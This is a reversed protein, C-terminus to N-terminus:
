NQIDNETYSIKYHMSSAQKLNLELKSIIGHLSSKSSGIQEQILSIKSETDSINSQSKELINVSALLKDNDFINLDDNLQSKKGIFLDKQNILQPLLDIIENIAHQSKTIDKVSVSGSGIASRASNLITIINPLNIQSIVDYPSSALNGTMIKLPKDLSSVYVYKNLPRSIKIFQEEVNKKILKEENELSALKQKIEQFKKYESSSEMMDIDKRSNIENQRESSILEELQLKRNEQKVIDKKTNAFDTLSNKIDNM